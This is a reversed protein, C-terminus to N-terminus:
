VENGEEDILPIAQIAKRKEFYIPKKNVERDAEPVAVGDAQGTRDITHTFNPPLGVHISRPLEKSDEKPNNTFWNIVLALNAVFQMVTLPIQFASAVQVGFIHQTETSTNFQSKLLEVNIWLTEQSCAYAQPLTSIVDLWQTSFLGANWSLLISSCEIYLIFSLIILWVILYVVKALCLARRSNGVRPKVLAFVIFHTLVLLFYCFIIVQNLAIRDFALEIPLNEMHIHFKKDLHSDDHFTAGAEVSGHDHDDQIEAFKRLEDM